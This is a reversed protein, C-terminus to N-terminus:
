RFTLKCLVLFHWVASVQALENQRRNCTRLEGNCEELGKGWDWHSNMKGLRWSM